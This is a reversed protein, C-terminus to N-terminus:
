WVFRCARRIVVRLSYEGLFTRVCDTYDTCISSESCEPLPLLSNEEFLLSRRDLVTGLSRGRTFGLSPRAHGLINKTATEPHEWTAPRRLTEGCVSREEHPRAGPRAGRGRRGRHPPVQGGWPGGLRLGEEPTDAPLNAPIRPNIRM